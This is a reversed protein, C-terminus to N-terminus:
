SPTLLVSLQRRGSGIDYTLAQGWDKSSTVAQLGQRFPAQSWHRNCSCIEGPRAKPPNSVPAQASRSVSEWQIFQVGDLGGM